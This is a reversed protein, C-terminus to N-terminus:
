CPVPPHGHLHGFGVNRISGTSSFSCSAADFQPWLNNRYSHKAKSSQRTVTKM